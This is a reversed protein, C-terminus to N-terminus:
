IGSDVRLLDCDLINGLIGVIRHWMVVDVVVYFELEFSLRFKMDFRMDLNENLVV